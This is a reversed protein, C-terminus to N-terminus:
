QRSIESNSFRVPTGTRRLVDKLSFSGITQVGPSAISHKARVRMSTRARPGNTTDRRSAGARTPSVRHLHEHGARGSQDSGLGHPVEALESMLHTSDVVIHTALEEAHLAVGRKDEPPQGLLTWGISMPRVVNSVAGAHDREDPLSARVEDNMARSLRRVVEGCAPREVIEVDVRNSGHVQQLGAAEVRRLADENEHARVLDIAISRVLTRQDLRRGPPVVRPAFIAVPDVLRTPDVLAEVAHEARALNRRVHHRLLIAAIETELGAHEAAA